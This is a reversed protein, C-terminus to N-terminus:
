LVKKKRNIIKKKVPPIYSFENEKGWHERKSLWEHWNDLGEIDPQTCSEFTVFLNAIMPRFNEIVFALHALCKSSIRIRDIGVGKITGWTSNFVMLATNTPPSILLNTTEDHNILNSM